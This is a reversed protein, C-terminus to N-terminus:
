YRMGSIASEETIMKLNNFMESGCVTWFIGYLYPCYHEYICPLFRTWHFNCILTLSLCFKIRLKSLILKEVWLSYSAISGQCVSRNGVYKNNDIVCLETNRGEESLSQWQKTLFIHQAKYCGTHGVVAICVPCSPDLIPTLSPGYVSQCGGFDCICDSLSFSGTDMFNQCHNKNRFLSLMMVWVAWMKDKTFLHIGKQSLFVQHIILPAYKSLPSCQLDLAEFDYWKLCLQWYRKLLLVNNQTWM